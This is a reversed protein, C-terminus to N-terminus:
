CPTDNGSLSIFYSQGGREITLLNVEARYEATCFRLRGGNEGQYTFGLRAFEQMYYAKISETDSQGHYASLLFTHSKIHIAKVNVNETEPPLHIAQLEQKLREEDRHYRYAQLFTPSYLRWAVVLLLCLVVSLIGIRRQKRQYDM